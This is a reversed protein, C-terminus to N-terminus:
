RWKVYHENHIPKVIENIIMYIYKKVEYLTYQTLKLSEVYVYFRRRKSEPM